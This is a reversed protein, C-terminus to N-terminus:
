LNGTNTSPFARGPGWIIRVAGSTGSGGNNGGGWGGAGYGGSSGNGGAGAARNSTAGGAGSSGEGWIGVGGGNGADYGGSSLGGSGGAGGSGANGARGRPGSLDSIADGGNGSYGGAGGGSTYKLYGATGGAGGYGGGDGVYGGGGGGFSGGGGAVFSPSIFYSDLGAAAATQEPRPKSAIYTPEVYLGARGVNVVYTQGPKVPINNKWGLGGGGGAAYVGVDPHGVGGGGGVCVVSVSYVGAPCTWAYTGPTTFQAQSTTITSQRKLIHSNVLVISM